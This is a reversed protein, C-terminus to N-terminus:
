EYTKILYKKRLSLFNEREEKDFTRLKWTAFKERALINYIEETGNVKCFMEKRDACNALAESFEKPWLSKLIGLIVYGTTVPQFKTHDLVVILVGRCIQGMFRGSFPSWSYPYFTVGPCKQENLLRALKEGDVWPAGALQFPLTYGIGTNMLPIEGLIGTIPYYLPSSSFPINPSTPIWPLKTDTFTMTRKWGKLPIVTLKCGIKYQDNFFTALEGITMGHCYPVNVYGVFSRWKEELMPGDVVVGNIPNPRDLVMLPIHLKAAEEMMYFLTSIYTYSRSGIDQIDYIILDIGALMEDTPRRRQGFLSYVPIGDKDVLDDIAMESHAAGSVGHEPGFIAKLTYSYPGRNEKFLTISPTLKSTVATHNTVLAIKKGKLYHAWQPTFLQELGVVVEGFLPCSLILFILLYM